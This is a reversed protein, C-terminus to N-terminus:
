RHMYSISAVARRVEAASRSGLMRPIPFRYFTCHAASCAVAADSNMCAAIM